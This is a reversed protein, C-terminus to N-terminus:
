YPRTPELHTYSVPDNASELGKGLAEPLWVSPEIPVPGSVIACLMAQIEDLRMADGQFVDADLLEELHDLESDSLPAHNM